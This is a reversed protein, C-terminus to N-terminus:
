TNLGVKMDRWDFFSLLDWNHSEDSYDIIKNVKISNIEIFKKGYPRSKTFSIVIVLRFCYGFSFM